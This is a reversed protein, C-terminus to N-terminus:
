KKIFKLLDEAFLNTFVAQGANNMHLPDAFEDRGLRTEGSYDLYVLGNAALYASLKQNYKDLAPPESGPVVFRLIRMRVLILQIGHENTLQILEPLFSQNIQQDFDLATHSYLYDDAVALAESLSNPDMNMDGFVVEMASDMCPQECGLQLSPLTYRIRSDIGQRISWRSGFPPFWAEALKELPNMQNLYARKILEGDKPGAFEDIQEFYRGTVRYGPVTMMSDRFFIVMYKPPSQTEIINNKVILYWLTSASGFLGISMINKDLKQSLVITNVARYLMSDGLLVIEPKQEDIANVYKRRIFKDFQPKVDRPYSIEYRAPIVIWSVVILTLLISFYQLFAKM